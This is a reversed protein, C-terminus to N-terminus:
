GPEEEPAWQVLTLGDEGDEFVAHVAMGPVIEGPDLGHVNGYMVLDDQEALRVMAVAYPVEHSPLFQHHTVVWSVLRGRGSVPAWEWRRDHCRACITRPPFRLTSCGSCRQVTLRHQRAALWWPASDRDEVPRPVGDATM